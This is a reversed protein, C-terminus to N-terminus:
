TCEPCDAVGETTVIQGMGLCGVCGFAKTTAVKIALEANRGTTGGREHWRELAELSGHASSPLSNYLYYAWDRLCRANEEDAHMAAGMLDHLLVARLFGGLHKPKPSGHNVWLDVSAQMHHPIAM